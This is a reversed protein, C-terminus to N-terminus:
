APDIRRFRSAATRPVSSSQDALIADILPQKRRINENFPIHNERCFEKLGKLKWESLISQTFAPMLLSSFNFLLDPQTLISNIQYAALPHPLTCLLPRQSGRSFVQQSSHLKARFTSFIFVSCFVFTDLQHQIIDTLM